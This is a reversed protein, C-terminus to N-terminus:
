RKLIHYRQENRLFNRLIADEVHSYIFNQYSKEWVDHADYQMLLDKAEIIIKSIQQYDKSEKNQQYLYECQLFYLESIECPMMKALQHSLVHDIDVQDRDGDNLYAQRLDQYAEQYNKADIKLQIATHLDVQSDIITEEQTTEAQTKLAACAIDQCEDSQAHSDQAM